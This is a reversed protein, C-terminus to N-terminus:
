TIENTLRKHAADAGPEGMRKRNHVMEDDLRYTRGFVAHNRYIALNHLTCITAVGGWEGRVRSATRHM